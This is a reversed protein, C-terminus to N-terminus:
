DTLILGHVIENRDDAAPPLPHALMAGCREVARVIGEGARGARIGDLVCAVVAEWSEQPGLARDIAEDGLVVVRHEFLSVYILIGTRGSTRRAVHVHFADRAGRHAARELEDERTGLRRVPDFRCLGHVLAVALAQLGFLFLLSADPAFWEEGLLVLAAALVSLRWPAAAFEESRRVVQVVIEGSTGQEAARVAAEIDARAEVPILRSPTM